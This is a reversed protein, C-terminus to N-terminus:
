WICRYRRLTKKVPPVSGQKQLSVSSLISAWKKIVDYATDQEEMFVHREADLHQQLNDFTSFMKVCGQEVCSFLGDAKHSKASSHVAIEGLCGPQSSFPVLVKLGTDEQARTVVSAYSYFHGKGIQYAKWSRVGDEYFHFNNLFSIGPIKCVEANMKTKNIEVVAFRCGRVGGHSELAVKKEEATTVDHGENVWRRIHTKMSAIRRDCVDKGSQPDSFDYRVVVIGHRASLAQLSLLLETNHYCGANDSRLYVNTIQPDEMKVVKLTHEVISAISFWDQICADFLHVFTEVEVRQDGSYDGGKIVCTVHWSRGRKGFFDVMQERFKMPQFKMAWDMIMLMSGRDVNALIDQKANDQVITRLLHSKWAHICKTAQNQEHLLRTRLEDTLHIGEDNLKATIEEIVNTLRQANMAPFTM